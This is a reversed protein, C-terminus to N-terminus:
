KTVYMDYYKEFVSKKRNSPKLSIEEMENVIHVPTSVATTPYSAPATTITAAPGGISQTSARTTYSVPKSYTHSLTDPKYLTIMTIYTFIM